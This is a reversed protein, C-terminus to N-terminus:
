RMMKVVVNGSSNVDSATRIATELQELPFEHTIIHELDWKGCSMMKQVDEVDEPLAIEQLAIKEKELYIGAKM